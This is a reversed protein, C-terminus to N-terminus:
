PGRQTMQEYVDRTWVNSDLESYGIRGLIVLTGALHAFLADGSANARAQCMDATAILTERRAWPSLKHGQREFADILGSFSALKDIYDKTNDMPDLNYDM